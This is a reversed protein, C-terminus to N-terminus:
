FRHRFIREYPTPRDMQAAGAELPHIQVSPPVNSLTACWGAAVEIDVDKGGNLICGESEQTVLLLVVAV